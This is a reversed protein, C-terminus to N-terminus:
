LKICFGDVQYKESPHNKQQSNDTSFPLILVKKLLVAM